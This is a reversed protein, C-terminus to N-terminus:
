PFASVSPRSTARATEFTRVISDIFAAYSQEAERRRSLLADIEGEIVRVAEEADHVVADARQRADIMTSQAEAEAAKRIEQATKHASVLVESLQDHDRRLTDISLRQRELEATLREVHNAADIADRTLRAIAADVQGRDYGYFERKFPM